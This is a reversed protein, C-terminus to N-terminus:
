RTSRFNEPSHGEEGLGGDLSSRLLFGRPLLGACVAPATTGRGCRVNRRVLRQTRWVHQSDLHTKTSWRMLGQASSPTLASIGATTRARRWSHHVRRKCRDPELVRDVLVFIPRAHYKKDSGRRLGDVLRQALVCPASSDCANGRHHQPHSICPEVLVSLHTNRLQMASPVHAHGTSPTETQRYFVALEM